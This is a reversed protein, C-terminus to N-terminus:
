NPIRSVNIWKLEFVNRRLYLSIFKTFLIKKKDIAVWCDKNRATM